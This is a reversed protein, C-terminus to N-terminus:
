RQARPHTVVNDAPNLIRSVFEALKAFADRKESLYDHRNYTGEIAPLAHGLCREAIERSVKARQMLTRATRRLDRHQWPKFDDGLKARMAADLRLKFSAWGRMPRDGNLSFVYDADGDIVPVSDIIQRAMASLPVASVSKNKPDDDRSADWVDPIFYAPIVNGNEDNETEVHVGPTLDRRRMSSVKHFRQATLLACKIVAGYTDDLLPWMVRLEQDSLVRARAREKMSQGRRMGKVIPTQFNSKRTAHWNFLKSLRALTADAQSTTGIPHGNHKIRKAEIKDLLATVDDRTIDAIERDNWEPLVYTTFIRETEEWSRPTKKKVHLDLFDEVVKAFSGSPVERRPDIGDKANARIAAARARVDDLDKCKIEHERDKADKYRYVGDPYRGLKLYQPKGPKSKLYYCVRLSITAGRKDARGRSILACLGPQKEDWITQQQHPRKSLAADLMRKTLTQKNPEKFEAREKRPKKAPTTTTPEPQEAMTLTERNIFPIDLTM